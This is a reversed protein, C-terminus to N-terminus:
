NLSLKKGTSLDYGECAPILKEKPKIPFSLVSKKGNAVVTLKLKINSCMSIDKKGIATTQVGCLPEFKWGGDFYAKNAVGLSTQMTSQALVIDDSPTKDRDIIKGKFLKQSIGKEDEFFSENIILKIDAKSNNKLTIVFGSGDFNTEIKIESEGFRHNIDEVSRKHCDRDKMYATACGSLALTLLLIYKM